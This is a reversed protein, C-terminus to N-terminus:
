RFFCTVPCCKAIATRRNLSANGPSNRNKWSTSLVPLTLAEFVRKLAPVLAYVRIAEMLSAVSILTMLRRLNYALVHLSMETKM